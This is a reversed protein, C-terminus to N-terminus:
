SVVVVRLLVFVCFCVCVRVVLVMRSCVFTVVGVCIFLFACVCM